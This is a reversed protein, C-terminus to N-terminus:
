ILRLIYGDIVNLYGSYHPPSLKTLWEANYVSLSVACPLQFFFFHWQCAPWCKWIEIASGFYKFEKVIFYTLM